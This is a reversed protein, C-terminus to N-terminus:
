QAARRLTEVNASAARSVVLAIPIGVFFIHSFVLNIIGIPKSPPQPPIASLAMVVYRMFLFVGIGYISGAILPARLPWTWRRTLLYFVAAAVIAITFHFFVGLAM